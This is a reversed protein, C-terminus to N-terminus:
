KRGYAGGRALRDFYSWTASAIERTVTEGDADRALYSTMVALSFPRGAVEVVAAETRVGPLNGTKSFVTVAAPVGARIQGGVQRLLKLGADKTEPRPGEGRWLLEALRALSAPSAVNEDGRKAAAADMMKRRLRIDSLGLEDMRANVNQMGVTDIIVNTASNDSIIIMLAVHDRLSLSPTTLYQLVGDGGVVKTRNLPTPTDLALSGSDAQKLFEYLISLKITSATPFAERELRAAVREGSTLDTVLYGVVGDVETALREIVKVFSARLDAQLPGQASLDGTAVIFMM